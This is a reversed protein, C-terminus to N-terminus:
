NIVWLLAAAACLSSGFPLPHDAQVGQGSGRQYALALGLALLAALLVLLAIDWPGAFAGLGAMLKVDGLGLGERGRLIQYAWRIVAFSGAGIAAGLMATSLGMGDPMTAMLLAIGALTATLADPLRFWILDCAGLAILLWLFLASLAISHMGGGAIVALVAAGLALIELYLTWAPIQTACSHCSGRQRIFSLIPVLQGSRLRVGCGRCASPKSIVNEGRPLRDVLVALFSGVAPSILLLFVILPVSVPM